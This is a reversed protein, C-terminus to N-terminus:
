LAGPLYSLAMQVTQSAGLFCSLILQVAQSAGLLCWPPLFSGNACGPLCWPPVRSVRLAPNGISDRDQFPAPNQIIEAQNAAFGPTPGVAPQGYCLSGKSLGSPACSQRYCSERLAPNGKCAEDYCLIAKLPRRLIAKLLGRTAYSQRSFRGRLM